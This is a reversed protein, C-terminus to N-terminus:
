THKLGGIRRHLQCLPCNCEEDNDSRKQLILTAATVGLDHTEGLRVGVPILGMEIAKEGLKLWIEESKKEALAEVRKAQAKLALVQRKADEEIQEAQFWLEELDSADRLIVLPSVHEDSDEEFFMM